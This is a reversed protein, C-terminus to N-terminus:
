LLQVEHTKNWTRSRHHWLSTVSSFCLGDNVTLSIECMSFDVCLQTHTTASTIRFRNQVGFDLWSIMIAFYVTNHLQLSTMYITVHPNRSRRDKLPTKALSQQSAILPSLENPWSHTSSYHCVWWLSWIADRLDFGAPPQVCVWLLSWHKLKSPWQREHSHGFGFAALSKVSLQPFRKWVTKWSM